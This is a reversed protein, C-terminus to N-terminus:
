SQVHWLRSKGHSSTHTRTHTTHRSIDMFSYHAGGFSADTGLPELLYFPIWDKVCRSDTHCKVLFYHGGDAECLCRRKRGRDQSRLHSCRQPGRFSPRRLSRLPGTTTDGSWQERWLGRCLRPHLHVNPPDSHVHRSDLYATLPSVQDSLLVCANQHTCVSGCGCAAGIEAPRSSTQKPTNGLNSHSAAWVLLDSTDPTHSNRGREKEASRRQWKFNLRSGAPSM